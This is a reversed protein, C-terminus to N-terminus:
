NGAGGGPPGLNKGTHPLAVRPGAAGSADAAAIARTILAHSVFPRAADHVLVLDPGHPQLAELGACVSGQRSAGGHVPPLLALGATAASFLAGDAPHIVPQVLSIGAHGALTALSPRIVPEGFVERYQKPLNGGARLGRGAAVVIAAVSAVMSQWDFIIRRM